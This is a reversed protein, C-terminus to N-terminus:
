RNCYNFFGISDLYKKIEVEEAETISQVPIRNPGMDLGLFKMIRKGCVINGRFRPLINIFQQSILQLSRAFELDGKDWAEAMQRYIPFIHNYTGGVGGDRLNYALASLFTEDLGHLIEFKGGCVLKAQCAEYMNDATYKVGAFNPIRGDVAELLPVIPMNVGSLAPIHYYYFPLKPAAAAIAECYAVLDENRRPPLFSPAMSGVGWAGIQQAHAALRVQVAVPSCGTHVIVKLRGKSAEVWREAVAMREQETLLAGEGTSGCIFVGNLGNRVLLECYPNVMSLNLSGDDNMPTFPAVVYGNIKEM